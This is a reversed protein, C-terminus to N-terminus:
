TLKFAAAPLSKEAKFYCWLILNDMDATQLEAQFGQM